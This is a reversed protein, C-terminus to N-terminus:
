RSFRFGQFYKNTIDYNTFVVKIKNRELEDIHNEKLCNELYKLNNREKTFFDKPHKEAEAIAIKKTIEDHMVIGVKLKFDINLIQNLMHYISAINTAMKYIDINNYIDFQLITVNLVGNVVKAQAIYTYANLLTNFNTNRLRLEKHSPKLTGDVTTYEQFTKANLEMLKELPNEVGSLTNGIGKGEKSKSGKNLGKMIAEKSSRMDLEFEEAVNKNLISSFSAKFEEFHQLGQTKNFTLSSNDGKLIEMVNNFNIEKNAKELRKTIKELVYSNKFTSVLLREPSQSKPVASVQQSNEKGELFQIAFKRLTILQVKKRLGEITDIKILKADVMDQMQRYFQMYNTAMNLKKAYEFLQNFLIVKNGFFYIIQLYELYEQAITQKVIKTIKM